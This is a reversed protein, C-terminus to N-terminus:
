TSATRPGAESPPDLLRNHLAISAGKGVRLATGLSPDFRLAAWLLSLSTRVSRTRQLWAQWRLAESGERRLYRVTSPAERRVVTRLVERLGQEGVAVDRLSLPGRRKFLRTIARAEESAVDRGLYDSLLRQRVLLGLKTGEEGRTRMVSSSVVRYRVLPEPLNALRTHPRLRAWLDCDEATWFAPDYGGVSRVLDTRFMVGPHSFSNVFLERVRIQGDELPFTSKSFPVGEENTKTVACSLLGVEPHAKMFAVQRELRDLAYGDDADARAVLPARCRCLGRNLSKTLGLNERNEVIVIRADRDAYEQLVALSDDTSGDEVAVLEFDEFTQGLLDNLAERLYPLGNYVPMLISVAPRGAESELATASPTLRTTRPHM